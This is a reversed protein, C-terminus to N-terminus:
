QRRCDYSGRLTTGDPFTFSTADKFHGPGLMHYDDVVDMNVGDTKGAASPTVVQSLPGKFVLHGNRWGPSSYNASSGWNDHYQVIFKGDVPDWGFSSRGVVHGPELTADTYFYHGGMARKTTLHMVAARSGPPPTYACTYSGLLFDLARMQPPAPLPNTSTARSPKEAADPEANVPTVAFAVLGMTAAGVAAVGVVGVPARRLWRTLRAPRQSGQGAAKETRM